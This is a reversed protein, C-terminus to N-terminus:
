LVFSTFFKFGKGFSGRRRMTRQRKRDRKLERSRDFNLDQNVRDCMTEEDDNM